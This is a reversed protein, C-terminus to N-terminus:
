APASANGVLRAATRFPQRNDKPNGLAPLHMYDIGADALAAALKRKSM